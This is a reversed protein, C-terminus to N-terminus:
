PAPERNPEAALASRHDITPKAHAQPLVVGALKRIVVIAADDRCGRPTLWPTMWFAQRSRSASAGANRSLSRGVGEIGYFDLGDSNRAETIGDTVLVLLDGDALVTSVQTFEHGTLGTFMPGGGTFDLKEDLEVVILPQENGNLIGVTGDRTDIVAFFATLMDGASAIDRHIANNVLTMVTSPRADLLAYARITHLVAAVRAAAQLGKGVIDGQIVVGLRDDGLDILDYFDGCIEAEALAPQYRASIEYGAPQMPTQPPILTQQLVNTIQATRLSAQALVEDARKRETIDMVALRCQTASSHIAIWAFPSHPAQTQLM